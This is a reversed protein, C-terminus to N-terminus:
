DNNNCEVYQIWKTNCSHAHICKLSQDPTEEMSFCIWELYDKVEQLEEHLGAARHFEGMWVPM